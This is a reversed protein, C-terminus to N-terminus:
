LIMEVEDLYAGLEDKEESLYNLYPQEDKSEWNDYEIKIRGYGAGSKGGIFPRQGWLNLARIFCGREVTNADQLVFEHRFRTGAKIIEFEYKMQTAQEDEERYERLDDLRTGYDRGVLEPSELPAGHLENTVPVAIDVKLKGQIMQNGIATGLLSIPPISARIEDRLKADVQGGAKKSELLGGTFLTHYLKPNKLEYEIIDLYDQMILRRLYGRIANGHIVPVEIIEGDDTLYPLTLITKVTGYDESGGHHIPSIATILGPFRETKM